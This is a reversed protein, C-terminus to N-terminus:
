EKFEGARFAPNVKGYVKGDAVLDFLENKARQSFQYGWENLYYRYRGDVFTDYYQLEAVKRGNRRLEFEDVKVPCILVPKLERKAPPVNHQEAHTKWLFRSPLKVPGVKNALYIVSEILEISPWAKRQPRPTADKTNMRGNFQPTWLYFVQSKRHRKRFAAMDSNVADTGDFSFNYKGRLAPKTGHIENKYKRSMGGTWPVNVPTLLPRTAVLDHFRDPSSITHECAFSYEFPVGKFESAVVNWRGSDGLVDTASLDSFNHNDRWAGQVRVGGVRGGELIRKANARADGFGDVDSFVGLWWGRPWQRALDSVVDKPYRALGLLDLGYIM